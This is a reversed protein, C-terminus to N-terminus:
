SIVEIPSGLFRNIHTERDKVLWRVSVNSLPWPRADEGPCSERSPVFFFARKSCGRNYSDGLSCVRHFSALGTLVGALSSRTQYNRGPKSSHRVKGGPDSCFRLLFGQM